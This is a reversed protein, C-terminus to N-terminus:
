KQNKGDFFEAPKEQHKECYILMGFNSKLQEM